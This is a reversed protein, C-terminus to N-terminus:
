YIEDTKLKLYKKTAFYTSSFIILMGFTFTSALILFISFSDQFTELESFNNQIINFLVFLLIVAIVSSILGLKLYKIIFPIQIFAKTAGVLQMTKIEFRKSFVSLRISNDILLIAILVFTLSSILMWYGIKNINKDLIKVLPQDYQVESVFPYQVFTDTLEKLIHPKVFNANFYIDLSSLLPNYGLFEIFEEGIEQAYIKAADEKSTYSVYKTAEQFQISKQIQHIEIKKTKDKFYITLVIQEKFYDAIKQSSVLFAGLVGIIFLVLMNIIVVSFYTSLLRRNQYKEELNNNL